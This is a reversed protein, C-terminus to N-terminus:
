PMTIGHAKLKNAIELLAGEVTTSTFNNGSDVIPVESAMQHRYINVFVKGTASKKIVWGMQVPVAPPQPMVNTLQGSSAGLWLIDGENWNITNINHLMGQTVVYGNAQNALTPTFVIGIVHNEITSGDADALIMSPLEGTTGSIAVVNGRNMTIGSVNRAYVNFEQGVQHTIFGGELGFMLTKYTEDWMLRGTQLPNKLPYNVLPTLAFDINEVKEGADTTRVVISNPTPNVSAETNYMTPPITSPLGQIARLIQLNVIASKVLMNTADYSQVEVKLIGSKYTVSNPINYTIVGNVPVVPNAVYPEDENLKFVLMNTYGTLETTLTMVLRSSNHEGERIIADEMSFTSLDNFDIIIDRM